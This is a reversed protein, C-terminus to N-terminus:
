TELVSIFVCVIQVWEFTDFLKCEVSFVSMCDYLEM